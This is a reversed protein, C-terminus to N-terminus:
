AHSLGALVATPYVPETSVRVCVFGRPLFHNTHIQINVDLSLVVSPLIPSQERYTRRSSCLVAPVQTM